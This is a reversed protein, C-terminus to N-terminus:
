AMGIRCVSFAESFAMKSTPLEVTKPDYFTFNVRLRM